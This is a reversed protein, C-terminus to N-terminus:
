REFFKEGRENRILDSVRLIEKNPIALFELLDTYEKNVIAQEFLTKVENQLPFYHDM